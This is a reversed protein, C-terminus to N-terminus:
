AWSSRSRYPGHRRWHWPPGSEIMDALRDRQRDDLTEHVTALLGVFEKRVEQISDDQRSFAEGLLTEDVGDSRMLTAIDERSKKAERKLEHTTEFFDDFANRIAKEQGPSTDLREFVSGLFFRRGRRFSRFSGGRKLVVFLGVLCATGFLFGFM